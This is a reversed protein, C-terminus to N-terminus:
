GFPGRVRQRDRMWRRELRKVIERLSEPPRVDGCRLVERFLLGYRQDRRRRVVGTLKTALDELALEVGFSSDVPLEPDEVDDFELLMGGLSIDLPRPMRTQADIAGKVTLGSNDLLPIRFTTRTEAGLIELPVTLTLRPVNLPPASRRFSRIPALFSHARGGTFCVHCFSGPAFALSRAAVADVFLNISVTDQQVESFRAEHIVGAGDSIVIAPAAHRCCQRLLRAAAGKVGPAMTATM